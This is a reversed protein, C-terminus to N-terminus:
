KGMKGIAKVYEQQQIYMRLNKDKLIGKIEKEIKSFINYLSTSDPNFVNKQIIKIAKSQHSIEIVKQGMWVFIKEARKGTKAIVFM